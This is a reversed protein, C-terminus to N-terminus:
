IGDKGGEEASIITAMALLEVYRLTKTRARYPYMIIPKNEKAAEYMKDFLVKQSDYLKIGLVEEALEHPTM